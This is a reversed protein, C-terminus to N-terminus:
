CQIQLTEQPTSFKGRLKRIKTIGERPVWGVFLCGPSSSGVRFKGGVLVGVEKWKVKPNMYVPVSMKKEDNM